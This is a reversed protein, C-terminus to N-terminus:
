QYHLSARHMIVWRPNVGHVRATQTAGPWSRAPHVLRVRVTQVVRALRDVFLITLEHLGSHLPPFVGLEPVSSRWPMLQSIFDARTMVVQPWVNAAYRHGRDDVLVPLPQGDHLVDAIHYQLYTVSADSLVRDVTVPRTSQGPLPRGVVGFLAIQAPGIAPTPPSNVPRPAHPACVTVLPVLVLVDLLVASGIGVGILRPASRHRLVALAPVWFSVVASGLLVFAPLPMLFGLAEDLFHSGTSSGYGYDTFRRIVAIATQLVSAGLVLEFLGVVVLPLILGLLLASPWGAHHRVGTM